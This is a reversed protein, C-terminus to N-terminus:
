VQLSDFDSSFLFETTLAIFIEVASLAKWQFWFMKNPEPTHRFRLRDNFQPKQAAQVLRHRLHRPLQLLEPADLHDAEEELREKGVSVQLLLLRRRM